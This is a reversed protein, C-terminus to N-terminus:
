MHTNILTPTCINYTDINYHIIRFFYYNKLSCVLVTKKCNGVLDM